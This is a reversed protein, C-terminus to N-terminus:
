SGRFFGRLSEDDFPWDLERGGVEDRLVPVRAGYAAVLAADDDIFVSAFEPARVRALAALAEDCLHCDDRQFLILRVSRRRRGQTKTPAPTAAHVEAARRAIRGGCRVRMRRRSAAERIRDESKSSQWQVCALMLRRPVAGRTRGRGDAYFAPM